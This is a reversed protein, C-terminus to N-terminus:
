NVFNSITKFVLGSFADPPRRFLTENSDVKKGEKPGRDALTPSYDVITKLLLKVGINKLASGCLVPVVSASAMAKKLVIQLEENTLTEGNLYKELLLDDTEVIAEMLAERMKSAAGKEPIKDLVGEDLLNVVESFSAEEGIPWTLPLCNKGFTSRISELVKLFDSNEKDLKNIFIVRPISKEELMNWMRETGIQLGEAACVLLLASDAIRLPAVVEGIFDAYGPTDLLFVQTGDQECTCVTTNISIRREREEEDYDSVSSCDDVKGMQEIAGANYLLAEALSSKGSGVHSLIVVNKSKLVDQKEAM